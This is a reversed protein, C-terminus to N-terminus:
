PQGVVRLNTPAAPPASTGPDCAPKSTQTSYPSPAVCNKPLPPILPPPNTSSMPNYLTYVAPGDFNNGSLNVTGCGGNNVYNYHYTSASNRWAVQNNSITHTGDCDGSLDQVKIGCAGSDILNTSVMILGRVTHGRGGALNVGCNGGQDVKNNSFTTNVSGHETLQTCGSISLNGGTGRFYNNDVLTGTSFAINVFDETKNNYTQGGITAFYNQSITIAYNNNAGTSDAYLAVHNGGWTTRGRPNLSYNGRVTVNYVAVNTDDSNVSVNAQGFALVNGQIDIDHSGNHVYINNHQEYSTAQTEVHIYNDYIRVQSSNSIDIGYGATGGCPGIESEKITINTSNIIRVCSGTTSTIKLGTIVTGNQGNIVIPGSPTLTAQATYIPWLLLVLLWLMNLIQSHM